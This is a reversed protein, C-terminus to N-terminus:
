SQTSQLSFTRNRKFKVPVIIKAQCQSVMQCSVFGADLPMAARHPSDTLPSAIRVQPPQLMPQSFIRLFIARAMTRVM